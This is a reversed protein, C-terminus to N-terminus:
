LFFLYLYWSLKNFHQIKQIIDQLTTQENLIFFNNMISIINYLTYASRVNENFLLLIGNNKNIVITKLKTYESFSYYISYNLKIVEVIYNLIDISHM